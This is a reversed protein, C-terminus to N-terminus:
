RAKVRMTSGSYWDVSNISDVAEQYKREWAPLRAEDQTFEISAVLSGFLYASPSLTLLWNTTNSVSLAPIRQLYLLEVPYASDPVPSLEIRGGSRTFCVPKGTSVLFPNDQALQDPSKYELISVPDSDILMLRKMELMDTPLTLYRNGIVCTLTVTTEMSRSEIDSSLRTEALTIFDPIVADLDTRHLWAGVATKLSAYDTISM